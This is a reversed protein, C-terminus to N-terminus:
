KRARAASRRSMRSRTNRRMHPSAVAATGGPEMMTAVSKGGERKRSIVQSPPPTANNSPLGLEWTAISARARPTGIITLLLMGGTAFLITGLAIRGLSPFEPGVWGRDETAREMVENRAM